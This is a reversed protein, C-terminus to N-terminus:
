GIGKQVFLFAAELAAKQGTLDCRSRSSNSNLSTTMVRRSNTAKQRIITVLGESRGTPPTRIGIADPM